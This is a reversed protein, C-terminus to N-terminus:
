RRSGGVREDVELLLALSQCLQRLIWQILLWFPEMEWIQHTKEVIEAHSLVSCWLGHAGAEGAVVQFPGLFTVLMVWLHSPPWHTRFSTLLYIGKGKEGLYLPQVLSTYDDWTLNSLFSHGGGQYKVQYRIERRGLWVRRKRGSKSVQSQVEQYFRLM